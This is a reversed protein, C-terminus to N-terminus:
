PIVGKDYNRSLSERSAIIERISHITGEHCISCVIGAPCSMYYMLGIYRKVLRYQTIYGYFDCLLGLCPTLFCKSDADRMTIILRSKVFVARFVKRYVGRTNSTVCQTQFLM